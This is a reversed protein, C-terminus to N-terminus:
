NLAPKVKTNKLLAADLSAKGGGSIIVSITLGLLLVFYELGESKQNGAWNMFFVNYAHTYLVIGIFNVLVCFAAFRTLFGFFIFLAAISETLIVLVAIIYPLGGQNTLFGMTGQFGFGGFWGLLKQSGHAFFVVGLVIRILTLTWDSDTALLDLLM